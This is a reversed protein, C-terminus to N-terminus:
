PDNSDAKPRMYGRQLYLIAQFTKSTQPDNCGGCCAAAAGGSSTVAIITAEKASLLYGRAIIIQM